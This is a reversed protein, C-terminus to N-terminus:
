NVHLEWDGTAENRIGWIWRARSRSVSEFLRALSRTTMRFLRHNREKDSSFFIYGLGGASSAGLIFVYSHIFQNCIFRLSPRVRTEQMLNYNEDLRHWNDSTVRQINPFSVLPFTQSAAKDKIKRAEILKRVIFAGHFVSREIRFYDADSLGKRKRKEWKRLSAAIAKLEEIYYWSEGIMPPLLGYLCYQSM